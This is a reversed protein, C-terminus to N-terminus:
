EWVCVAEVVKHGDCTGLKCEGDAERRADKREKEIRGNEFNKPILLGGFTVSEASGSDPSEGHALLFNRKYGSIM